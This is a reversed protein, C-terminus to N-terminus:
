KRVIVCESMQAYIDTLILSDIELAGYYWFFVDMRRTSGSLLASFRAETPIIVLHLNKGLIRSIETALAVNYGSPKGNAAIYDYPPFDGNIGVLITEAGAIDPIADPAEAMNDVTADTVYKEYLSGLLGSTRLETIAANIEELLGTDAARMLMRLGSEKNVASLVNISDDGSKIYRATESSSHIADVRRSKLAALLENFTLFSKVEGPRFGYMGEIQDPTIAVPTVLLGYSKNNLEKV